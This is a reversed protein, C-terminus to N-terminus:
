VLSPFLEPKLWDTYKRDYPDFWARHTLGLVIEEIGEAVSTIPAFGIERKAKEFSVRYDRNDPTGGEHMVRIAPIYKKVFSIITKKQLNDTGINYVQGEIKTQDADLVALIARAADGTHTFPRWADEKYLVIERGFWADRVIENILLNFRMKPSLGFLTALRLITVSFSGDSLGMLGQEAAIKSEAYLSLPHLPSKEDALEEPTSVGYNSCTSTFVFRSVGRQKAQSALRITSVTNIQETLKPDIKCAPEGVLAALHVVADISRSFLTRIFRPDRIDGVELHFLPNHIHALLGESGFMCIDAATVHDGRALLLPVLVSGLYGASGTVLINM